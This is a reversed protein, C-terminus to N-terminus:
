TPIYCVACPINHNATIGGVTHQIEVGHLPARSNIDSNASLYEPNSPLCLLNAGGGNDNYWAGAARGSYLLTTGLQTPCSTREWRVYTAGAVSPGSPGQPGAPGRDGREGKEGTAGPEGDKGDRGPLGDRGDRGQLLQICPKAVDVVSPPETTQEEVSRSHVAAGPCTRIVPVRSFGHM